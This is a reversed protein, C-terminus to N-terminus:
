FRFWAKFWEPLFLKRGNNKLFMFFAIYYVLESVKKCLAGYGHFNHWEIKALVNALHQSIILISEGDSM